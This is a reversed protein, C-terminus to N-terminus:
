WRRARRPCSSKSRWSSWRARWCFRRVSMMSQSWMPDFTIEIIIDEFDFIELAERIQSLITDSYPCTPTTFTLLINLITEDEGLHLNYILGLSVIDINLEPDVVTSLIQRIKPILSTDM